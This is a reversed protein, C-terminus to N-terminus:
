DRGAGGARGRPTRRALCSSLRRGPGPEAGAEAGGGGRGWACASGAARSGGPERHALEPAPLRFNSAPRLATASSPPRRPAPRAEPRSPPPPPAEPRRGAPAGRRRSPARGAAAESHPPPQGHERLRRPLPRPRQAAAQVPVPVAGSADASDRLRIRVPSQWRLETSSTKPAGPTLHEGSPKPCLGAVSARRESKRPQEGKRNKIYYPKSM